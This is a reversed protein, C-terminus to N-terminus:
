LNGEECDEVAVKGLNVGCDDDQAFTGGDDGEEEFGEENVFGEDVDEVGDEEVFVVGVEDGGGADDEGGGVGIGVGVGVGVVTVVVGFGEDLTEAFWGGGM